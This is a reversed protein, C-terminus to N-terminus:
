DDATQSCLAGSRLLTIPQWHLQLLLSLCTILLGCLHSDMCPMAVGSLLPESFGFSLQCRHM